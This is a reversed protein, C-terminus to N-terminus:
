SVLVKLLIILYAVGILLFGIASLWIAKKTWGVKIMIVKNNVQISDLLNEVLTSTSEDLSRNKFESWFKPMNPYVYLERVYVAVLSSALSGLILLLSAIVLAVFWKPNNTKDWFLTLALFGADLAVIISSKQDLTNVLAFQDDLKEKVVQYIFRSTLTDSNDDINKTEKTM